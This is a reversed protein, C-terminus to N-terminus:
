HCADQCLRSYRDATLGFIDKIDITFALLDAHPFEGLGTVADWGPAAVWGAGPIVPSGNPQGHFRAQGDCGTSSGTTIDNMATSANSYLWPNLFGMTPQGSQLRASNLLTVIGNFTPAAASTGRVAGDMGKDIVRYNVSQAAVDPFGRGTANFLGTFNNGITTQLYTSVAQEQYAPRAWVNSFGGSSFFTATEPAIGQTQNSTLGGHVSWWDLRGQTSVGGVATVYPCSAPFQPQFKPANTGNNAQCFSGVGSDGSAIMVSKGRAGLQAFMNCVQTAYPLPIEQENEGYSVSISNPIQSNNLASLAILWELFPENSNGEQTPSEGDPVLQGLGGVSFETVPVDFGVALVYQQDLNAEGSDAQSTQDNVGGNMTVVSFQM